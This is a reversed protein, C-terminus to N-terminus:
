REPNFKAVFERKTEAGDRYDRIVYLPAYCNLNYVVMPKGERNATAQADRKIRELANM